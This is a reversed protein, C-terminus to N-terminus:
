DVAVIRDPRALVRLLGCANCGVLRACLRGVLERLLVLVPLVELERHEEDEDCEDEGGGIDDARRLLGRGRGSSDRQRKLGM